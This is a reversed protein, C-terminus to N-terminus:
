WRNVTLAPGKTQAWTDPTVLEYTLIGYHHPSMFIYNETLVIACQLEPETLTLCHLQADKTIFGASVTGLELTGSGQGHM